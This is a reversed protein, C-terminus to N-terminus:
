IQIMTIQLRKGFKELVIKYLQQIPMNYIQERTYETKSEVLKVCELVTM